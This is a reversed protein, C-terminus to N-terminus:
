SLVVCFTTFFVKVKVCFHFSFPFKKSLYLSALRWHGERESADTESGFSPWWLRWRPCEETELLKQSDQAGGQCILFFSFLDVGRRSTTQIPAWWGVSWDGGGGDHGTRSGLGGKAGGRRSKAKCVGGWQSSRNISKEPKFKRQDTINDSPISYQPPSTADGM